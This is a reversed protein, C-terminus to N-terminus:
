KGELKNCYELSGLRFRLPIRTTKEFLLEKACFFGLHKAYFNVPINSQSLHIAIPIKTGPQIFAMKQTFSVQTDKNNFFLSHEKQKFLQQPSIIKFQAMLNNKLSLFILFTFVIKLCYRM